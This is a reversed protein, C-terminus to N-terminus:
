GKKGAIYIIQGFQELRNGATLRRVLLNDPEQTAIAVGNRLLGRKFLMRGKGLGYRM